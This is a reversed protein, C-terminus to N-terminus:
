KVIIKISNYYKNINKIVKIGLVKMKLKLLKLIHKKNNKEKWTAEIYKIETKILKFKKQNTALYCKYNIILKNKM